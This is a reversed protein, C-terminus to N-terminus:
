FGGGTAAKFWFAEVKGATLELGLTMRVESLAELKPVVGGAIEL